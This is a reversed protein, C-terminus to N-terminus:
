SGGFARPWCLRHCLTEGREIRELCHPQPGALAVRDTTSNSWFGVALRIPRPRMAGLLHEVWFPQCLVPKAFAILHDQSARSGVAAPRTGPQVVPPM